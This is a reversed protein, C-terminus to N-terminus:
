RGVNWFKHGVALELNGICEIAETQAKVLGGRARFLDLEADLMETHTRSGAKVGIAALRVSEQYQALARLRARYLTISHFFKRKWVDFEEPLAIRTKRTENQAEIVAQNAQQQKAYSYGGDFLNWKLRVGFASANQLSSNSLIASDFNGFQYYQEEAFLSVSPFWFGQSASKMQHSAAERKMDAQLDDRNSSDLSLDKPVDSEKLVPLEGSLPRVDEKEIGMAARLADRTTQINNQAEEEEAHAEELTAEIRLVDFQTGYGARETVHARNLHEELTKVNQQAVEFLKQAALARFFALRVNEEVRFQARSLDLNAADEYLGAARYKHISELGDFLTITADLTINDQPFAAPFNVVSGGFVINERLYESTFYHDYNASLHPLHTSLAEMKGWSVREAAAQLRKLEPSNEKAQSIAEDLSLAQSQALSPWGIIMLFVLTASKM